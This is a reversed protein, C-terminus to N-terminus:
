ENMTCITKSGEFRWSVIINTEKDVEFFLMCGSRYNFAYEINKNRILRSNVVFQSYRVIFAGPDNASRGVESQMNYKLNEHADGACSTIISISCYLIIRRSINNM